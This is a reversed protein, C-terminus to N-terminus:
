GRREERGERLTHLAFLVAGVTIASDAVNFAPWDWGRWNLYIFDVVGGLAVRDWLNGVAGGLIMALGAGLLREGQRLRAIWVVIVVSVVLALLSFFWRQWGGADSLFSFAAGLNYTLTFDLFPLVPVMEHLDLTSRALWKTAQDAVLLLLALGLWLWRQVAPARPAPENLRVAEDRRQRRRKARM